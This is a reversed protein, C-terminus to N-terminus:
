GLSKDSPFPDGFAGRGTGYPRSPRVSQPETTGVPSPPFGRLRAIGATFQQALTM